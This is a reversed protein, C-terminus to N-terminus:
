AMVSSSSSLINLSSLNTKIIGVDSQQTFHKVLGNRTATKGSGQPGQVIIASADSQNRIKQIENVLDNFAKAEVYPYRGSESGQSSFSNRTLGYDALSKM